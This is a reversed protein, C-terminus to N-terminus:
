KIVLKRYFQDLGNDFNVLYIGSGLISFDLTITNNGESMELNSQWHKQGSLDFAALNWVGDQQAYFDLKAIGSTANPYFEGIYPHDTNFKVSIINSFEYSGDNDIQKLRYYYLRGREAQHDEFTYNTESLSNDNGEEFGVKKFIRGDFSSQIEFGRNDIETETTWSLTISNKNTKASFHALEVPLGANFLCGNSPSGSGETPDCNTEDAQLEFGMSLCNIPNKTGLWLGRGMADRYLFTGPSDMHEYSDCGACQTAIKEYNGNYDTDACGIVNLSAPQAFVNSTFLHFSIFLIAFCLKQMTFTSSKM